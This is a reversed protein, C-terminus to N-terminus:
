LSLRDGCRDPQTEGRQTSEARNELGQCLDPLAPILHSKGWTVWSVGEERPVLLPEACGPLPHALTATGTAWYSTARPGLLGLAGDAMGARFSDVAGMDAWASSSGLHKPHCLQPM